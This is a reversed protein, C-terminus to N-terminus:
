LMKWEGDTMYEIVVCGANPMGFDDLPEFGEYDGYIVGKYYVIGDDDKMRFREPEATLTTDANWPGEKGVEDGLGIDTAAWTIEWYYKSKSM